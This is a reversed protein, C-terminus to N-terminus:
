AGYVVKQKDKNFIDNQVTVQHGAREKKYFLRKHNTSFNHNYLNVKTVIFVSGINFLINTSAEPAPDAPL